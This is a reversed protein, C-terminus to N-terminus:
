GGGLFDAPPAGGGGDGGGGLVGPKHLGYTVLVGIGVRVCVVQRGGGAMGVGERGYVAPVVM